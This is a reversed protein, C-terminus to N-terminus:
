NKFKKELIMYGYFIMGGLFYSLIDYPDATFNSNHHPLYWEFVWSFYAATFLIHYISLYYRTNRIIWKRIIFLVLSLIIPLCLIDNLYSNIWPIIIHMLRLIRVGAYLIVMTFFLVYSKTIKM